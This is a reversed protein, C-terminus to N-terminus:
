ISYAALEKEQVQHILEDLEETYQLLEAQHSEAFGNERLAVEAVRFKGALDKAGLQATRGAVRHMTLMLQEKDAKAISAKIQDIDTASDEVFRYLIKEVLLRDGFAIKNLADIDVVSSATEEFAEEESETLPVKNLLDILETERFPKMLLGDFGSELIQAREEPLAQATIAYFAVEESLKEKLLGALEIGTIEPMRMDMLVVDPTEGEARKLIAAASHFCEHKIQNKSLVSSCFDLIFRDDDILWVTGSFIRAAKPEPESALEPAESLRYSLRVIFETGVGLESEVEISGGQGEVLGKVISLGLGTGSQDNQLVGVREFENFVYPLNDKAIGCGSDKIYFSYNAATETSQRTVYLSVEGRDTFKIANGLLNFLIQKLRFPDGLLSAETDVEAALSLQLGKAEAQPRMATMVEELVEYMRFSQDEFKYKGSIIRSYDLIENVIRLLHNSSQYIADVDRRAPRDQDRILEAFGLISQLPTRIEHSMSSLFRQRAMNQFEAENKAEELKLRYTNSRSIDTIILYFFVSTIVLFTLMIISINKISNDVLLVARQGSSESQLIVEREVDKLISLIQNILKSGSSALEAERNIFSSSQKAHNNKITRVVSSVAKYVTDPRRRIITDIKVDIEEEIVREQAIAPQDEKKRGFLKRLFGKKEEPVSSPAVPVVTFSKKRETTVLTSEQKITGISILTPLSDLHSSFVENNVLEERQKRYGTFLSDRMALLSKMSDIRNLQREDGRYLMKLSDMSLQLAASDDKYTGGTLAQARKQQDLQIIKHYLGNVIRLKENPASISKVTSLLENSAYRSVSWALVFFVCGLLFAIIVKGKTFRALPRKRYNSM